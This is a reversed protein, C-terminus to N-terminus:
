AYKRERKRFDLYFIIVIVLALVLLISGFLFSITGPERLTTDFKFNVLPLTLYRGTNDTILGAVRGSGNNGATEWVNQDRTNLYDVIKIPLVFITLFMAFLVLLKGFGLEFEFKVPKTKPVTM